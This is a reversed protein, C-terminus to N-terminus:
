CRSGRWRDTRRCRRRKRHRNVRHALEKGLQAAAVDRAPTDTHLDGAHGLFQDFRQTEVVAVAREDPEDIAVSRGVLCTDLRAVHDDLEVALCDLIAAVERTQDRAALRPCCHRHGDHTVALRLAHIHRDITELKALPAAGSCGIPVATEPEPKAVQSGFRGLTEVHRVAPAPRQNRRHVRAACGRPGTDLRTIDDELHIAPFNGIDGVRRTLKARGRIRPRGQHEHPALALPHEQRHRLTPLVHGNV